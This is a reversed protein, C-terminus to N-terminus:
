CSPMTCRRRKSLRKPCSQGGHQPESIVQRYGESYGVGCSVSCASWNSWDSMVCGQPVEEAAKSSRVSSCTQLCETETLFNNRNGRCGGYSFSQCSQTQPNYSYRQYNGRCPGSDPHQICIDKAMESNIHCDVPNICEKQQHLEMRSLCKDKAEGNELLVLRTRITVGRGCTSTCPSWDSWQTTPCEPDPLEVQEYTCDPRMCKNKEVVTIHPCRKRGLHNVFTRTRMTIGIGCSASCESWVSWPSTKCLGAGEGNENVLSQSNALNEGEDEDRLSSSSSEPCEAVPAVCMEKSVLQRSCKADAAKQPVVYHRNRMRIGKGCTVSCPSWPTFESVRCEVRTDQEEADDSVEVQLAQLFEDDCNRSVIKERRVYLKALPTMERSKPNYFPARPDEPYMTTIRYMREPPQTESNPSMYTIGSDTGADWPYLNFDMSEVWSCDTTCLDVGSIGVVWDPSPGFMSVLSVKPHKRDVRFKSSTNQNVDPYWLGAAKILTRLKPGNARLESELASPSGWEALSRFGATAIHNEGWFSFNSEHSAGIIDSFHTLWIAFPYDKPHTENSWIGEFTFSYKAEDCACCEKQITTADPKRECIVASLNGDDSYWARPGEYVMASLSVCGSGAEPAVWMVQVETKPLDDAESVTNVCRDNFKTLSDSFLQFRGVRRPNAAQPRRAGTHAEASITFHTFHQIKDHTRHGLLLLNYTKGPVYGNPGDAVILKYGNDGRTRRGHPMQPARPCASTPSIIIALCVVAFLHGMRRLMLM